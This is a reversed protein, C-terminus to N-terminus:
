QTHGPYTHTGPHAHTHKGALQCLARFRFHLCTSGTHCPPWQQGDNGTALQGIVEMEGTEERPGSRYQLEYNIGLMHGNSQTAVRLVEEKTGQGVVPLREVEAVACAAPRTRLSEVKILIQM